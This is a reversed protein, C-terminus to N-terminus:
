GRSEESDTSIQRLVDPDHTLQENDVTVQRAAEGNGVMCRGNSPEVGNSMGGGVVHAVLQRYETTNARDDYQRYGEQLNEPHFRSSYNPNSVVLCAPSNDTNQLPWPLTSSEEGGNCNSMVTPTPINRNEPGNGHSDPRICTDYTVLLQSSEGCTDALPQTYENSDPEASIMPPVPSDSVVENGDHHVEAEITIQQSDSGGEPDTYNPQEVAEECVVNRLELSLNQSPERLTISTDASGSDTSPDKSNLDKVQVETKLSDSSQRLNQIVQPEDEQSEKKQRQSELNDVLSPDVEDVNTVAVTEKNLTQLELNM